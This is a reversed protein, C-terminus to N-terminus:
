AATTAAPQMWGIDDGMIFLINPKKASTPAQASAPLSVFASMALAATLARRLIRHIMMLEKGAPQKDSASHRCEARPDYNGSRFLSAARASITRLHRPM